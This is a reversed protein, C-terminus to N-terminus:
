PTTIYRWITASPVRGEAHVAAQRRETSFGPDRNREPSCEPFYSPVTSRYHRNTLDTSHDNTHHRGTRDVSRDPGRRQPAVHEAAEVMHYSRYEDASYSALRRPPSLRLNRYERASNPQTPVIPRYSNNMVSLERREREVSALLHEIARERREISRGRAERYDLESPAESARPESAISNGIIPNDDNSQPRPPPDSSGQQSTPRATIQEMHLSSSTDQPQLRQVPVPDFELLDAEQDYRALLPPSLTSHSM